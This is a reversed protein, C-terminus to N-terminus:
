FRFELCAINERLGCGHRMAVLRFPKLSTTPQMGAKARAGRGNTLWPTSRRWSKLTPASTPLGTWRADARAMHHRRGRSAAPAKRPTMAVTPDAGVRRHRYGGRVGVLLGGYGLDHARDWTAGRDGTVSGSGVLREGLEALRAVTPPDTVGGRPRLVCWTAGCHTRPM